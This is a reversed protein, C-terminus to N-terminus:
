LLASGVGGSFCAEVVLGADDVRRILAERPPGEVFRVGAEETIIM